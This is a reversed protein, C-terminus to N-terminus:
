ATLPCADLACSCHPGGSQTRQQVLQTGTRPPPLLQVVAQKCSAPMIRLPAPGFGADATPLLSVPATTAAEMPPRQM